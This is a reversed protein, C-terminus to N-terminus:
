IYITSSKYKETNGIDSKFYVVKKEKMQLIVRQMIEELMVNLCHKGNRM